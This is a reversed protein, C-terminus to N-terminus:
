GGKSNLEESVTKSHFQITSADPLWSRRLGVAGKGLIMMREHIGAATDLCEFGWSSM